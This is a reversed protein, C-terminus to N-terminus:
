RARHAAPERPARAGASLASVILSRLSIKLAGAIRDLVRISFNERGNEIGSLYQYSIGARESLDELRLGRRKRLERIRAGIRQQVLGNGSTSNL